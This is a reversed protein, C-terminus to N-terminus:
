YGHPYPVLSPLPGLRPPLATGRQQRLWLSGADSSHVSVCSLLFSSKSSPPLSSPLSPPPPLSPSLSLPLFPPLSPSLSTSLSPPLSPPLALPLSLPLSPSLPLSIPYSPHLFPPLSPSLSFPYFPPPPSFLKFSSDLRPAPPMSPTTTSM